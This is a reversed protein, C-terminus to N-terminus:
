IKIIGIKKLIKISLDRSKGQGFMPFIRKMKRLFSYKLQNKNIARVIDKFNQGKQFLYSPLAPEPNEIPTAVFKMEKSFEKFKVIKFDTRLLTLFITWPSYNYPHPFRFFRDNSDGPRSVNPLALYLYGSPKLFGRIMGLTKLPETFHEFTHHLIVFDFQKASDQKEFYDDLGGNFVRVKYYKNAVESCLSSPEVGEVDCGVKDKIVKLFTGWGCGIDLIRSHQNFYPKIFDLFIERRQYSKKRELRKIAQNLEYVNHRERIYSQQYYDEYEKASAQPNLYVLGCRRCIVNTIEKGEIIDKGKFLIETDDSNCLPCRITEM